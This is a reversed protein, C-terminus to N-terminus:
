TTYKITVSKVRYSEDSNLANTVADTVHQISFLRQQLFRTSIFHGQDDMLLVWLMSRPTIADCSAISEQVFASVTESSSAQAPTCQFTQERVGGIACYRSFADNGDFHTRARPVRPASAEPADLVSRLYSYSM